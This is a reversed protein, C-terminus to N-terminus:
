PSGRLSLTTDLEPGGMVRTLAAKAIIFDYLATQQQTRATTLLTEADLVDFTTSSAAEYRKNEIRFNEEAQKVASEVVQLAEAASTLNVHTSRAELRLLNEVKDHADIAQQLRAGAEQTGFYTAGWEWVDWSVVGGVYWSREQQFTSGKSYTYNWVGALAPLMKSWALRRAARAQATHAALEKIEPRRELTRKEIDDVAPLNDTLVPNVDAVPTLAAGAPLGMLSALRATTLIVNGRSQILRQKAAALGLEARLVDNEGVMGQALFARAREVQSAVQAVSKEAIQLLGRTQLVRYFAETVLYAVDNKSTQRKIEAVDLGLDRLHYAELITWLPTIPQTVTASLSKTTQDRVVTPPITSPDLHIGLSSLIPLFGSAFDVTSPSDWRLYAAQLNVKPGFGSMAGYRGAAAADVEDEASRIDPNGDAALKLCDELTVTRATAEQASARQPQLTICATLAALSWVGIKSCVM